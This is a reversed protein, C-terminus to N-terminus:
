HPPDSATSSDDANTSPKPTPMWWTCRFALIMSFAAFPSSVTVAEDIDITREMPWAIPVADAPMTAFMAPRPADISGCVTDCDTEATNTHASTGSPKATTSITRSDVRTTGRVTAGAIATSLGAGLVQSLM